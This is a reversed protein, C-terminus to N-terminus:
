NTPYFRFEIHIDGNNTWEAFCYYQDWAENGDVNWSEWLKEFESAKEIPILWGSLYEGELENTIIDHGEGTDFFFIKGLECAAAQVISFYKLFKESENTRLGRM